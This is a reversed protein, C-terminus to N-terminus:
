HNLPVKLARFRVTAISMLLFESFFTGSQMSKIAKAWVAAGVPAYSAVYLFLYVAPHAEVWFEAIVAAVLFFASIFAENYKKIFQIM